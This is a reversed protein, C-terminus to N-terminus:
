AAEHDAFGDAQWEYPHADAADGPSRGAAARDALIGAQPAMSMAIRGSRTIEDVGFSQLQQLFTSITSPADMVALVIAHPSADVVRADYERTLAYLEETRDGPPALRVLCMEQAVAREYTVDQVAVIDVLRQLQQVVQAVDQRNVVLTMRSLGPMETTAVALSDINFGRRRFLSVARNLVGPRDQMLAIVTHLM